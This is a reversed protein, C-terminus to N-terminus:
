DDDRLSCPLTECLGDAPKGPCEEELVDDPIKGDKFPVIKACHACQAGHIMGDKGLFVSVFLHDTPM